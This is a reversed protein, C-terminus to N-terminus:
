RDRSQGLLIRYNARANKEDKLEPPIMLKGCGNFDAKNELYLTFLLPSMRGKVNPQGSVNIENLHPFRHMNLSTLDGSLDFKVANKSLDLEVISKFIKDDDKVHSEFGNHVEPSIKLDMMAKVNPLTLLGSDSLDLTGECLKAFMWVPM